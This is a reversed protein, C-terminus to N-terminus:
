LRVSPVSVAPAPAHPPRVIGGPNIMRDVDSELTHEFGVKMIDWNRYRLFSVGPYHLKFFQDRKADAERGEKTYHQSGDAELAILHGSIDVLIDVIRRGILQNGFIVQPRANLKLLRCCRMLEREEKTPNDRMRQAWESVSKGANVKAFKPKSANAKRKAARRERKLKRKERQKELAAASLKAKPSIVEPPRSYSGAIPYYKGGILVHPM